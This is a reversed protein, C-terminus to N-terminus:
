SRIASSSALTSLRTASPGVAVSTIPPTSGALTRSGYISTPSTAVGIRQIQHGQGDRDVGTYLMYYTIDGSKRVITPAWVHWNDWRGPRVKIAPMTNETPFWDNLNRSRKHGIIRETSDMTVNMDHRIYFIHFSDRSAVFAFDKPQIQEHSILNIEKMFDVCAPQVSLVSATDPQLAAVDLAGSSSDGIQQVSPPLDAAVRATATLSTATRDTVTLALRWSGDTATIHVVPADSFGVGVASMRLESSLHSRGASLILPAYDNAIGGNFSAENSEIVQTTDAPNLAVARLKGHSGALLDLLYYAITAPSGESCFHATCSNAASDAPTSPPEISSVEATDARCALISDLAIFQIGSSDAAWQLQWSSPLMGETSDAQVILVARINESVTLDTSGTSWRLQLASSINPILLMLLLPYWRARRM